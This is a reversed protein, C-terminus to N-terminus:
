SEFGEPFQQKKIGLWYESQRVLKQLDRKDDLLIKLAEEAFVRNQSGKALIVAGDQLKEFACDGADYPSMFTRVNCGRKQAAPALYTAADSGITIVLDLKEPDCYSGVEEHAAVSFDGLENMSGLIAIRQPSKLGYMVDLAAKVAMPSANYSDDIILSGKQGALLKMRGSFAELEELCEKIQSGNIGILKAAAAAALIVKAGQSGLLKVKANVQEGQLNLQIHQGHSSLTDSDQTVWFDASADTGYSVYTAIDKLYKKPSDDINILLQKSFKHVALEERAVAGMSGFFEMHEASLATVVSLEPKLYAFQKIQGPADTGLETVVAGYPFSGRIQQENSVLIKFWAWVNFLAPNSHGFFVLPVTLRDNYNGEQYRVRKETALTKAIALKTSTKGVSGVVSVLTFTHRKRLRRVQWELVACLMRKGRTKFM